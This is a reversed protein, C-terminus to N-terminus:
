NFCLKYELHSTPPNKQSPLQPMEQQNKEDTEIKSWNLSVVTLRKIKPVMGQKLVSLVCLFFSAMSQM